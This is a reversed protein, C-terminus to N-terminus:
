VTICPRSPLASFATSAHRVASSRRAQPMTRSGSAAADSVVMSPMPARTSRASSPVARRTYGRNGADGAARRGPRAAPGSPTPNETPRNRVPAHRVEHRHLTATRRAPGHARANNRARQRQAEAEAKATILAEYPEAYDNGDLRAIRQIWAQTDPSDPGLSNHAQTSRTTTPSDQRPGRPWATPRAGGAPGLRREDIYLSTV